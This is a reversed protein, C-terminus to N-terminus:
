VKKVTIKINMDKEWTLNPDSQISKSLFEKYILPIPGKNYTGFMKKQNTNQSTWPITEM